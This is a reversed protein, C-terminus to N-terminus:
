MRHLIVGIRRALAVMARKSGRHRAVLAAWTRGAVIAAKQIPMCILWKLINNTVSIQGMHLALPPGLGNIQTTESRHHAQLFTQALLHLNRMASTPPPNM